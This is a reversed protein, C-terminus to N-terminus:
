SLINKLYKIHNEKEWPNREFPDLYLINYSWYNFYKDYDELVIENYRGAASDEVNGVMIGYQNLYIVTQFIGLLILYSLIVFIFIM